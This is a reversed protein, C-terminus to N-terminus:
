VMKKIQIIVKDITLNFLRNLLQDLLPITQTIEVKLGNESVM